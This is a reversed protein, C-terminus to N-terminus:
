GILSFLTLVWSCLLSPTFFTGRSAAVGILHDQDTFVESFCFFFSEHGIQVAVFIYERPRGQVEDTDTAGDDLVAQAGVV